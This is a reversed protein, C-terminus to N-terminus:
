SNQKFEAESSMEASLKTRNSKKSLADYENVPDKKTPRRQLKKTDKTQNKLKESGDTIKRKMKFSMKRQAKGVGALPKRMVINM